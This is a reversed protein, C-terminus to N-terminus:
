TLSLSLFFLYSVMIKVGLVNQHKTTVLDLTRSSYFSLLVYLREQIFFIELKINKNIFLITESTRCREALLSM